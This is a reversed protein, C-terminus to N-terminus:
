RQVSFKKSFVQKGNAFEIFYLGNAFHNTALTLSQAVNDYTKQLLLKGSVDYVKIELADKLSQGLDINLLENAPNPFLNIKNALALTEVGTYVADEDIAIQFAPTGLWGGNGDKVTFTFQDTLNDDGNHEYAIRYDNIFAQTFQSGVAMPEGNKYLTGHAVDTVLTYILGNDNNDADTAKLFDYTITRTDSPNVPFLENNVITPAASTVAGCTQLTWGALNGGNSFSNIKTIRLRWVGQINEGDFDSLNDNEDNLDYIGGMNPPCQIETPSEDDFGFNFETHNGCIDEFLTVETGAPSILTAKIFKVLDNYGNMNPVNLDDITGSAEINMVSEVFSNTPLSSPIVVANNNTYNNCASNATHFAFPATYPGPGCENVPRVRWYFLTNSAFFYSSNYETLTSNYRSDVVSNGFAPSTAIEIDYTNADPIDNWDFNVQGVFDASGNPPTSLALSSFDNSVLELLLDRTHVISDNATGTVEVAFNGEISTNTMDIYMTTTEGPTLPNNDFTAVAGEPLGNATLTIPADFGLFTASSIEIPNIEPLCIQQTYPAVNFNFTAESAEEIFFDQNSIDFFINNAAEVRIRNQPGPMDPVVVMHSGDNVVNEALMVPYTYGGDTSLKIHVLSCNVPAQDTNAVDWTVEQTSGAEWTVSSSPSLIFFPGAEIASNFEIEAWTASGAEPNNDRVTFRFTLPRTITPLVEKNDFNNDIIKQLRPFVRTPSTSPPYSRFLPATTIPSGLPSLPGLDYQEWCYTLADDNEDSAIGTLEFPTSIPIHFGGELDISSVPSLNNTNIYEPCSGGGLNEIFNYMQKLSAVHFYDDNTSAINNSGCAGGYSMITTGSGPEYATGASENEGGCNNFTHTVNFQHGIEHSTTSVMFAEVNANGVCSVGAAKNFGCVVGLNAVGALGDTCNTTFVHGIDYESPDVFGNMISTSQSLVFGGSSVISYPDTDPDLMICQDNNDILVFRLNAENEFILNLRNVATNMISLVSEITGGGPGQGWEGVCSLALRYVKMDVPENANASRSTAFEFHELPNDETTTETGCKLPTDTMYDRTFYTMYIDQPNKPYLQAQMYNDIYVTGKPTKMAAHFGTYSIDLRVLLEPQDIGNGKYSKIQPHRASIGPEMCPTQFIQFAQFSGDPMPLQIALAQQNAAQTFEMPADQLLTKLLGLDLTHLTYNQPLYQRHEELAFSADDARAVKWYNSQAQLALQCCLILLLTNLTRM